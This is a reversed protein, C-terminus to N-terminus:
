RCPEKNEKNPSASPPTLPLRFALAGLRRIGAADCRQRLVRYVDGPALRPGFLGHVRDPHVSVFLPGEPPNGRAALWRELARAPCLLPEPHPQRLAALRPRDLHDIDLGTAGVRSLGGHHVSLVLARDRLGAADEGCAGAVARVEDLQVSARQPARRRAEAVLAHLERSAPSPLGAAEHARLVAHAVVDLTSAAHGEVRYRHAIYALLAEATAPLATRGEAHCWVSFAKWAGRYAPARALAREAVQALEARVDASM